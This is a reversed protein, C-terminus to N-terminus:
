SSSGTLNLVFRQAGTLIRGLMGREEVDTAAVVDFSKEQLGEGTVILQGIKDGERLPAQLPANVVLEAKLSSRVRTHIGLVVAESLRAEVTKAEGLYVPVTGVIDGADLMRVAVFSDFAARMLQEATDARETEDELGNIVIIRRLGDREASGVLGYGSQSLHGTKLGDAGEFRYLLPNRNPQSIGRWEFSTEAYLPYFQPFDAVIRQALRALDRASIRHEDGYLGTANQFRATELGLDKATRTMLDAFAEESGAIGQALVICADNGSHVIVGRLLNEVSVSEGIALGMTSGGSAWGGRRWADESVTFEADLTLRGEEIERFVVYATMIKTMSAPVMPVDANKEFLTLGSEHDMIFAHPASTELAQANSPLPVSLLCSAFLAFRLM